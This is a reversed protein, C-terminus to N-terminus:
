DGKWKHIHVLEHTLLQLSTFTALRILYYIFMTIKEFGDLINRETSPMTPELITPLEFILFSMLLLYCYGCQVLNHKVYALRNCEGHTTRISKIDRHYLPPLMIPMFIYRTILHLVILIALQFLGDFTQLIQMNKTQIPHFLSVWEFTSESVNFLFICFSLIIFKTEYKTKYTYIIANYEDDECYKDCQKSNREIDGEWVYNNTYINSQPAMFTAHNPISAINRDDSGLDGILVTDGYGIDQMSFREPDKM